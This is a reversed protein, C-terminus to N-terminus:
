TRRACRHHCITPGSEVTEIIGAQIPVMSKTAEATEVVTVVIEVISKTAEM